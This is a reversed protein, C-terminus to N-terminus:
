FNRLFRSLFALGGLLFGSLLFRGLSLSRFLLSLFLRPYSIVGSESVMYPM